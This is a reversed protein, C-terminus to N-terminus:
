RKFPYGGTKNYEIASLVNRCMKVFEDFDNEYLQWSYLLYDLRAEAVNPEIDLGLLKIVTKRNESHAPQDYDTFVKDCKNAFEKADELSVKHYPDDGWENLAKKVEKAVSTMISEYLQKKNM